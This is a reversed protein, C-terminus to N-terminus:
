LNAKKIRDLMLFEFRLGKESLKESSVTEFEEDSWKPFFADGTFEQDIKTLYLRDALPLFQRYVESGGIVFLEQVGRRDAEELVEPIGSFLHCGESSNLNSNEKSRTIIWNQRNPLPRGLSEFTKRGMVIVHGQTIQKFRKLDQPLHWPLKNNIGIVDNKSLAAILSIRMM